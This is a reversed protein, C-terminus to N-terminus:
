QPDSNDFSDPRKHKLPSGLPTTRITPPSTSTNSTETSDDKM